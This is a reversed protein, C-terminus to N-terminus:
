PLLGGTPFHGIPATVDAQADAAPSQNVSPVVVDTAVAAVDPYLARVLVVALAGGLLEFAVFALVSSPAIGAFTDTFM